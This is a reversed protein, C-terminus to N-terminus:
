AAAAAQQRCTCTGAGRLEISRCRAILEAARDPVASDIMPYMMTEEKANHERMLALLTDAAALYRREDRRAGADGLDDLLRRIEVHEACMTASPGGEGIGTAEEFAPFLVEEEMAIHELLSSRFAVVEIAAAKWDGAARVAKAFVADCAAHSQLMFESITTM